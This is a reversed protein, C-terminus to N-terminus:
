IIEKREFSWYCYEEEGDWEEDYNLRLPIKCHPCYLQKSSNYQGTLNEWSVLDDIPEECNPCPYYSM